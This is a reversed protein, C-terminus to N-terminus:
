LSSVVLRDDINLSVDLRMNVVQNKRVFCQEIDVWPGAYTGPLIVSNRVTANQDIVCNDGIFANPGIIANKRIRVNDGLFVNGELQATPHIKVNRCIRQGPEKERGHIFLQSSFEGSIVRCYSEFLGEFSDVGLTCDVAIEAAPRFLNKLYNEWDSWTADNPIAEIKETPIWGWGTWNGHTDCLMRTTNSATDAFHSLDFKPLRTANALLVGAHERQAHRVTELPRQFDSTIYYAFDIGWRQGDGLWQQIAYDGGDIVLDIADVGQNILAEVVHQIFPRDVFHAMAPPMAGFLSHPLKEPWNVIIAKM